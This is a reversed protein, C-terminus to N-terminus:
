GEKEEEYNAILILAVTAEIANKPNEFIASLEKLSKKELEKRVEKYTEEGVANILAKELDKALEKLFDYEM